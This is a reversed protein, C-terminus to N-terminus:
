RKLIISASNGLMGYTQGMGVRAGQVQRDGAEGRLQWVIECLQALGQAGVAEGFSTFGGSPNIPLRGGIMTQGTRVLHDMEGPECMGLLEPYHLYHWVSNDPLELFDVERPGIGAQAFAMRAACYSESLIPASGPCPAAVVGPAIQPDGYLPSGHGTGAILVPQAKFARAKEASCLIAAAAGDRVACMMLLTLPDCVMPANLVDAESFVKRFVARPNLAAHKSCAVKVKALDSATTGFEEMRKRCQMAWYAPNTLGVNRWRITDTDYPDVHIQNAAYALFGEPSKDLGIAMVIDREGSAVMQYACRVSDLGTACMSFVNIIPIGTQGLAQAVLPGPNLGSLSGWVWMGSVLGQIERWDMGADALADLAAEVGMHVFPKGPFRGWPHMGVGVIAVDRM